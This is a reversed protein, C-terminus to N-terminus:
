SVQLFYYYGARLTFLEDIAYVVLLFLAPFAFVAQFIGAGRLM